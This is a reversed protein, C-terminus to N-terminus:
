AFPGVTIHSGVSSNLLVSHEVTTEDGVFADSFRSGPYLTCGRGIKTSGQLTNNPYLITGCGIVVDAGIVTREPELIIVGNQMHRKIIRGKLCRYAAAFSEADTVAIGGNECDAQITQATDGYADALLSLTIDEDFVGLLTAPLAFALTSGQKTILACPTDAAREVLASLGSICPTHEAAFLLIDFDAIPLEEQAFAEKDAGALIMADKVYEGCTKGLLPMSSVTTESECLLIGLIKKM